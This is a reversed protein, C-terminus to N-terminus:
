SRNFFNISKIFDYDPKLYELLKVKNKRNKDDQFYQHIARYVLYKSPTSYKNKSDHVKLNTFNSKCNEGELFLNINDGLKNTLKIFTMNNIGIESMLPALADVQLQTHDKIIFLNANFLFDLFDFFFNNQILIQFFVEKNTDCTKYRHLDEALGSLYREYPDRLIAFKTIKDTVPRSELTWNQIAAQTHFYTSANKPIGINQVTGEPNIYGNTTRVTPVFISQTNKVIKNTPVALVTPEHKINIDYGRVEIM